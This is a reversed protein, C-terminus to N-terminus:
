ADRDPQSCGRQLRHGPALALVKLLAAPKRQRWASEPVLRAGVTVRFSGLLEIRLDALARELGANVISWEHGVPSWGDAGRVCFTLLGDLDQPGM